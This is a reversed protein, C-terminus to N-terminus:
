PGSTGSCPRPPRRTRRISRSPSAIMSSCRVRHLIGRTASAHSGLPLRLFVVQGSASLKALFDGPCNQGILSLLWERDPRWYETLGIQELKDLYHCRPNSHLDVTTVPEPVSRSFCSASSCPATLRSWQTLDPTLNAFRVVGALPHRKSNRPRRFSYAHALWPLPTV